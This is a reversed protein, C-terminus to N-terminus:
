GSYGFLLLHVVSMVAEWSFSEFRQLLFTNISYTLANSMLAILLNFDLMLLVTMLAVM